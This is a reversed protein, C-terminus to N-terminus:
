DTDTVYILRPGARGFLTQMRESDQLRMMQTGVREFIKRQMIRRSM